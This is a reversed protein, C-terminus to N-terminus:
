DDKAMKRQFEEAEEDDTIQDRVYRLLDEPTMAPNDRLAQLCRLLLNRTKEYEEMELMHNKVMGM